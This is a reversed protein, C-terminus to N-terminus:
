ELRLREEPTLKELNRLNEKLTPYDTIKGTIPHRFDNRNRNRCVKLVTLQDQLAELNHIWLNGQLEKVRAKEEPTVKLGEPLEAMADLEEDTVTEVSMSAWLQIADHQTYIQKQLRPSNKFTDFCPDPCLYTMALAMDCIPGIAPSGAGAMEMVKGEKGCLHCKVIDTEPM